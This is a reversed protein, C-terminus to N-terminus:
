TAAPQSGSRAREIYGHEKLKRLWRAANRDVVLKDYDIGPDISPRQERLMAVITHLLKHSRIWSTSQRAFAFCSPGRKRTKPTSFPPAETCDISFSPPRRVCASM